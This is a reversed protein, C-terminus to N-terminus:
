TGFIKDFVPRSVKQWNYEQEAFDRAHKKMKQLLEDNNILTNVSECFSEYSEIKFCLGAKSQSIIQSIFPLDNGLVAIGSQLYQSLKNPCCNLNNISTAEYPIVGVDAESAAQILEDETVAKAFILSVDLSKHERAIDECFSKFECDPGRLILVANPPNLRSWYEVLREIGRGKSFNGQFLFVKRPNKRLSTGEFKFELPACNPISHVKTKLSYKKEIELALQPTVSIISDIEPLLSKEFYSLVTILFKTAGPFQYPYFEHADYTVKCGYKEKLFLAPLLSDLDNAVVFDPKEIANNKFYKVFTHSVIIFHKVLYFLLRVEAIFKYSPRDQLEKLQKKLGPFVKFIAARPHRSYKLLVVAPLLLLALPLFFVATIIIKLPLIRFLIATSALLNLKQPNLQLLKIEKSFNPEREVQKIGYASVKNEISLSEAMWKVRPDLVLDHPALVVITKM